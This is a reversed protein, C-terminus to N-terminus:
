SRWMSARHGLPRSRSGTSFLSSPHEFTTFAPVAIALLRNLLMSAATAGNPTPSAESTAAPADAAPDTISLQYDEVEGDPALGFYSYGASGTLRFRTFTSGLSAGAPVTIQLNNAGAIVPQDTFVQEGADDWNGDQNFDIWGGLFGAGSSTVTVNVNTGRVLPDFALGNDDAGDGTATANPQGDAEADRDAGLFLTNGTIVHQAGNNALTTPFSTGSEPADGFDYTLPTLSTGFNLTLPVTDNFNVLGDGDADGPGFPGVTAGFNLTLPVTDNFNVRQDGDTDGFLIHFEITHTRVLPGAIPNTVQSTTIEATYQGDPLSIGSLDWSVTKDGNDMLRAGSIDIATGTTHNFLTLSTVSQVFAPVNFTWALVGVGSRNSSPSPSNLTTATVQFPDPVQVKLTASGQTFVEFPVGDITEDPQQVWGGGRHVLDDIDRRVILTNSHSSLNLVGRHDLTLVNAGCDRIDIIEIDVIRNDAIKTLDLTLGAADLRLTDIGNGGVIRRTGSFDVDTLALVDDGEGGRLVDPGGDSILTDDGRGGILIDLGTGRTANLTQSGDGSLQTWAACSNDRGFVVYSEGHDVGGSQDARFAGIIVDDFGDGNVDGASSVFAGSLDGPDIGLLVLGNSGNISSLAISAAFGGSRGYYIYSEGHSNGGPLDAGFAGIILDDFGDGNFDGASSVSIGASDFADIGTLVFGDTGDLAGLSVVSAFAPRGFVVYSEGEQRLDV